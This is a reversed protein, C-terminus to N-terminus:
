LTCPTVGTRFRPDNPKSAISLNSWRRVLASLGSLPAPGGCDLLKAVDPHRAPGPHGPIRPADQPASPGIASQDDSAEFVRLLPSLEIM